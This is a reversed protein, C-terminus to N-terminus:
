IEKQLWMQKDCKNCHGKNFEGYDRQEKGCYPCKIVEYHDGDIDSSDIGTYIARRM